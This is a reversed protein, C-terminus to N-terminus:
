VLAPYMPKHQQRQYKPLQGHICTQRKGLRWIATVGLYWHARARANNIHGPRIAVANFGAFVLLQLRVRIPVGAM